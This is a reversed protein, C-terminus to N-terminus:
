PGEIAEIAVRVKLPTRRFASRNQWLNVKVIKGSEDRVFDPKLEPNAAVHITGVVVTITGWYTVSPFSRQLGVYLPIRDSDFPSHGVLKPGLEYATLCPDFPTYGIVNWNLSHTALIQRTTPNENEWLAPSDTLAKEGTQDAVHQVMLRVRKGFFASPNRTIECVTTEIPPETTQALVPLVFVVLLLLFAVMWKM